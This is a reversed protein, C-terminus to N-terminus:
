SAMAESEYRAISGIGPPWAFLTSPEADLAVCIRLILEPTVARYGGSEVESVVSQDRDILEGLATQTLGRARREAAVNKGWFAYVLNHARQERPM